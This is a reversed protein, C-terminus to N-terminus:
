KVGPLKITEIPRMFEMDPNIEGPKRPQSMKSAGVSAAPCAGTNRYALAAAVMGEQPDGLQRSLDDAVPCTPTIGTSPFVVGKNNRGEFEIGFYSLTCNNDQTFGYPKGCTTSGILIVQVDIGQMSSIFSETASCSSGTTLVFVRRLNLQPLAENNRPNPNTIANTITGIFPINSNQSTRKDNYALTEFIKNNTQASGAVMYGLQSSFLLFGGGNYRLDLILDQVGARAFRGFADALDMEGRPTSFSTYALYGVNGPLIQEAAIPRSGYTAATLTVVTVAGTPTDSVGIQVRQGPQSAFVANIQAQTLGNLSPQGDVSALFQGRRLGAAVASSGPDVYSIRIANSNAPDRRLRLGLDTATGSAFQADAEAQTQVFSFRDRAPLARTTYDLFLNGPTGSYTNPNLQASTFPADRYFLYNEFWFSRVWNKQRTDTCTAADWDSPNAGVPPQGAPAPPAILRGAFDSSPPIASPSPAPTPAPTAGGGGGGGGCATLVALSLALVASLSTSRVSRPSNPQQLVFELLTPSVALPEIRDLSPAALTCLRSIARCNAIYGIPLARYGTFRNRSPVYASPRGLCRHAATSKLAVDGGSARGALARPDLAPELAPTQRKRQQPAM